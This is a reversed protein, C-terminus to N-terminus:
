PLVIAALLTFCDNQVLNLCFLLLWYRLLLWQTCILASCGIVYFCDNHVFSPLAALLMFAIMTCLHLFLLWYRLFLWQAGISPLAALLTFSIMPCWNFASCGIFYFFDNHVLQLCVLLLTFDDQFLIDIRIANSEFQTVSEFRM